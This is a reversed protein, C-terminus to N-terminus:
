TDVRTSCGIGGHRHLACYKNYFCLIDNKDLQHYMAEFRESAVRMSESIELCFLVYMVSTKRHGMCIGSLVINCMAHCVNSSVTTDDVIQKFMSFADWLTVSMLRYDLTVWLDKYFYQAASADVSPMHELVEVLSFSPELHAPTDNFQLSLTYAAAVLGLIARDTVMKRLQRDTFSRMVAYREVYEIAYFFTSTDITERLPTAALSCICRVANDRVWRRRPCVIDPVMFKAEQAFIVDVDTDVPKM